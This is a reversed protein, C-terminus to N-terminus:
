AVQLRNRDISADVLAVTRDIAPHTIGHQRGVIQILKDVREILPTGAVVARAASSPNVLHEAASAYKDFPVLDDAQAGLRRVISAVCSYIDRSLELDAHVADRMSVPAGVAICRYNGTLLMPWKALPVFPSDHVRLKVPVDSGDLRVRDIDDALRKLMDNEDPTAFAASKFNTALGVRLINPPAGPPRAAQADPSCLTMKQPDFREWVQADAYAEAAADADIAPIRKLYPLPPMNMLSLCPVGAEAMRALLRREAHHLYQPEQM